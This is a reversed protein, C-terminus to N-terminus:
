CDIFRWDSLGQTICVHLRIPEQVPGARPEWGVESELIWYNDLLQHLTDIPPQQGASVGRRLSLNSISPAPLTLRFM